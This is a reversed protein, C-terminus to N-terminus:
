SPTLYDRDDPGPLDRLRLNDIFTFSETHEIQLQVSRMDDM